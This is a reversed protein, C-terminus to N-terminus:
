VGLCEYRCTSRLSSWIMPPPLCCVSTLYVGPMTMESCPRSVSLFSSSCESQSNPPGQPTVAMIVSKGSSM